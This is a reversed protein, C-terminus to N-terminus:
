ITIENYGISDELAGVAEETIAGDEFVVVVKSYSAMGIVPM